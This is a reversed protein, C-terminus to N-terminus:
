EASPCLSTGSFHKLSIEQMAKAVTLVASESRSAVFVRLYTTSEGQCMPNSAPTGIRLTHSQTAYRLDLSRGRSNWHRWLKEQKSRSFIASKGNWFIGSKRQPLGPPMSCFSPRTDAKISSQLSPPRRHHSDKLEQYVYGAHRILIARAYLGTPQDLYEGIKPRRRSLWMPSILALM